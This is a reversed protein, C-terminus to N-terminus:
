FANKYYNIEDGLIEIVDFRVDSYYKNKSMLYIEAVKRIKSQKRFDVAEIPRGFALTERRKVEVFVIVNKDQAIIDIEGIKTKYNTEVIKFDKKKLFDVAFIEGKTGEINNKIKTYDKM